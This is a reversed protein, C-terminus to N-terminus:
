SKNLCGVLTAEPAVAAMAHAAVPSLPLLSFFLFYSGPGFSRLLVRLTVTLM